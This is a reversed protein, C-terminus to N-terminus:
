KRKLRFIVKKQDVRWKGIPQEIIDGDEGISYVNNNGDKYYVKKNFIIEELEEEVEEITDEIDLNIVEDATILKSISPERNFVPEEKIKIDYINSLVTDSETSEIAVTSTNEEYQQINAITPLDSSTNNYSEHLMVVENKAHECNFWFSPHKSDSTNSENNPLEGVRTKLFEEISDMRTLLGSLLIEINKINNDTHTHATVCTEINDSSNKPHNCNIWFSPNKSHTCNYDDDKNANVENCHLSTLRTKISGEISDLRSSVGSLLTEINTKNYTHTTSRSDINDTYTNHSVITLIMDEMKNFEKRANDMFSRILLVCTSKNHEMGQSNYENAYGKM